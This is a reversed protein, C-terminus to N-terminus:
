IEYLNALTEAKELEKKLTKCKREWYAKFAQRPSECFELFDNNFNTPMTNGFCKVEELTEGCIGYWFKM